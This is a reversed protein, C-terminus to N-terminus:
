SRQDIEQNWRPDVPLVDDPDQGHLLVNETIIRDAKVDLELVAVLRQDNLLFGYTIAPDDARNVLLKRADIGVPVRIHHLVRYVAVLPNEVLPGSPKLSHSQIRWAM